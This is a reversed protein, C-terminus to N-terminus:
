EKLFKFTNGNQLKFFYLGNSYNKVDIKQNKSITGNTIVKGLSNYVTYNEIKTLNYFQIYDDSPNPYIQLGSTLTNEDVSLSANEIKYIKDEGGGVYRDGFYLDNGNLEMGTPLLNDLGTTLNTILSTNTIDTKIISDYLSIFLENGNILLNSAGPPFGTVVETAIPAAETIDIKSVSADNIVSTDLNNEIFYLDNGNLALGSPADLGTLLETVVPTAETIDIKYIKDVQTDSFYLDNGNLVMDSLFGIGNLVETAIPTAETIDIKYISSDHAPTDLNNQGFYLDNGNLLLGSPSALGTLVDTIVPTAETIDIKSIKGFSIQAIYLDNGNLEISSPWALGGSVVETIQSNVEFCTLLLISALIRIQKM